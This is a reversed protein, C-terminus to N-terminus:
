GRTKSKESRGWLCAVETESRNKEGFARPRHPKAPLYLPLAMEILSRGFGAASDVNKGSSDAKRGWGSSVDRAGPKPERQRKTKAEFGPPTELSTKRLPRGNVEAVAREERCLPSQTPKTM